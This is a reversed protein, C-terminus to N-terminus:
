IQFHGYDSRRDFTEPACSRYLWPRDSSVPSSIAELGLGSLGSGAGDRCAPDSSSRALSSMLAITAPAIWPPSSKNSHEHHVHMKLRGRCLVALLHEIDSPLRRGLRLLANMGHQTEAMLQAPSYRNAVLREVHPQIIRSMDIRPDLLHAVSEMTALAKLLLSFRPALQLRNARLIDIMREIGQGVNGGGIIAQSEFAIFDAIQHELSQLDEIDGTTTLLLVANVCDAANERFISYLLEALNATDTTELHGVMGYDLFAIQNDKTIFINGPHPDAHFFRHEFVQRCLIECGIHAVTVPDCNRAAYADLADIRAGDIWDMTLVRKGSYEPYVGPVFIEETDEFNARFREIVRREINFDLERRISQAFEDVIAAPDMWAIEEVHDAIWEAIRRMLSLDSEIVSEIGPRQIKVAVSEGTKLVARYVQGLSASAIQENQFESFGEEVGIGLDQRLVGEMEKFPTATVNDQLQRLEDCIDNGM